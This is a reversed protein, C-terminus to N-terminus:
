FHLLASSCGVSLACCLPAYIFPASPLLRVACVPWCMSRAAECIASPRGTAKHCDPDCGHQLLVDVVPGHGRRAAELLSAGHYPGSHVDAIPDEELLERVVSTHGNLAAISLANHGKLEGAGYCADLLCMAAEPSRHRLVAVCECHGAAAARIQLVTLRSCLANSCPSQCTQFLGTQFPMHDANQKHSTHELSLAIVHSVPKVLGATCLDQQAHTENDHRLTTIILSLTIYSKLCETIKCV